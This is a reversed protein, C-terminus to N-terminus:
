KTTAKKVTAAKKSAKKEEVAAISEDVKMQAAQLLEKEWEALPEEEVSASALDPKASGDSAGAKKSVNTQAVNSRAILGQAVADAIINTLLEISKTADDNGAIPYDINTPDCNTDMIALIPIGLKRAEDVAIKEKLIDVIWVITPTKTMDRVGNLLKELKFKERELILLEKKTYGSESINEFDIQELDKLRRVSKMVTKLNTLMGGPWRESVYPMGVKTALESIAGKAQRKTGVFLITGGAAVTQKVFDYAIDINEVTKNLDIIYNGNRSTLIYPKMKPNWNKTPHGFHVGADLLGKMTVVAM